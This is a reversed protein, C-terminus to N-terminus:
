EDNLMEQAIKEFKSPNKRSKVKRFKFESHEKSLKIEGKPLKGKFYHMNKTVKFKKYKKLTLGTEEFVERELGEKTSENEQVHGGPIDWEGSFKKSYKTRKLFLAEDKDNFLVIKAVQDTDKNEKLFTEWKKMFDKM